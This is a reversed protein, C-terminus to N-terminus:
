PSVARNAHAGDERSHVCRVSVRWGLSYAEGLTEIAMLIFRPLSRVVRIPPFAQETARSEALAISRPGVSLSPAAL